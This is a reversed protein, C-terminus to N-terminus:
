QSVAALPSAATQESLVETRAAESAPPLSTTFPQQNALCIRKIADRGSAASLEVNGAPEVWQGIMYFNSLGSLQKKMGKGMMMKMKRSTISWGGIAGRWNETFREYTPPTAVDVVECAARLGPIRHDLEDLVIDAIDDEVDDYYQRMKYIRKWYEFDAELWLTVVSKGAPAMTPDYGYHKAVLREYRKGAVVRPKHMRFNICHPVDSLNLNVGLSVQVIPGAIPLEKYYSRIRDDVYRGDLLTFITDYGDAASIVYDARVQEGGELEVGVARDNEVLIRTVRSRYHVKGGLAEYRKVIGLAFKLSGGIPYGACRRHLLALTMLMVTM